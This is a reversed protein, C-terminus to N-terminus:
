EEMAEAAMSRRARVLWDNAAHYDPTEPLNTGTLAKDFRAHLELRWAECREFTEEGRKIALLRDRHSGVNVNLEGNELVTIGALLLRLLHMLHKWKVVGSNRLDAQLKKFQSLVYGNYTQYIMKSLFQGRMELLEKALPTCTEVLPTYLCELINPNAKLALVVFKQAEWYVEETANLDLQEPVGYLSWHLEAPPLYIGRRDSDSQEDDLGYARSGVICRYIVHKQLDYEALLAASAGAAADIVGGSQFQALVALEKRAFSAEFGDPFRVRYSHWYDSPSQIIVGVAGRPHVPKGDTGRVEVLAVVQTGVSLILNPSPQNM